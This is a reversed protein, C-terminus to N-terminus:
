KGKEELLWRFGNERLFGHIEDIHVYYGKQGSTGSCLGLVYGQRDILPGGSRGKPTEGGVEWMATADTANPKRVLKKRVVEEVLSPAGGQACGTLLAPFEKDKPISEPRCLPVVAVVQDRREFRLLALDAEKARAVVAARKVVKEPQPYSKSSFISVEVAEARGVLHAATLVYVFAESQRIVVGTGETQEGENVVRVTALIAKTQQEKTFNKSAAVDIQGPLILLVTLILM